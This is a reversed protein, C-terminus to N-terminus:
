PEGEVVSLFETLRWVGDADPQFRVDLARAGGPVLGRYRMEAVRFVPSTLRTERFAGSRLLGRLTREHRQRFDSHVCELAGALDGAELARRLDQWRGQLEAEFADGTLVSVPSAYTAVRGQADRIRITAAYQGPVRYVYGLDEDRVGAVDSTGDGDADIEVAQTGEPRALQWILGV